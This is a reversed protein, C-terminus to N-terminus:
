HRVGDVHARLADVFVKVKLARQTSAPFVAYIGGEPLKWQPLVRILRGAEIDQSVTFDTMVGFGAGALVVQKLAVVSDATFVPNFVVEESESQPGVFTWQVPKSLVSFGAMPRGALERPSAPLGGARLLAPSAVLWLAFSGLKVAQHSSDTLWGLRIGVDVREAVLDLVHDATILEIRLAPHAQTLAAAVPAVVTAAYDMPATVRLTGTVEGGHCRASEIAAEAQEIIARSAEYFARGAETLSLSRTTRVILTARLETELKQIHTTVLAKAVNLRRAAGALTGAEVVAVFVALRNLNIGSVESM